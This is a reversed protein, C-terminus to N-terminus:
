GLRQAAGYQAPQVHRRSIILQEVAQVAGLSVAVLKILVAVTAFAASYLQEATQLAGAAMNLGAPLQNHLHGFFVHTLHNLTFGASTFFHHRAVQVVMGAAAIFREYRNVTASNRGLQKFTFQEAMFLAGKGAGDAATGPTELQGFATRQEEIFEAVHRQIQLY